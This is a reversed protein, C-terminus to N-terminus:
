REPISGPFRPGSGASAVGVCGAGPVCPGDPCQIATCQDPPPLGPRSPESTLCVCEEQGVALMECQVEPCLRRSVLLASSETRAQVFCQQPPTGDPGPLCDYIEAPRGECHPGGETLGRSRPEPIGSRAARTAPEFGSCVCSNMADLALVPQGHSAMPAWLQEGFRYAVCRGRIGGSAREQSAGPYNGYRNLIWAWVRQLFGPSAAQGGTATVGEPLSGEVVNGDRDLVIRIPGPDDPTHSGPTTEPDGSDPDEDQGEPQEESGTASPEPPPPTTDEDEGDMLSGCDDSQIVVGSLCESLRLLQDAVEARSPLLPSGGHAPRQLCEPALEGTADPERLCVQEFQANLWLLYHSVLVVSRARSLDQSGPLARAVSLTATELDQDQSSSGCMSRQLTRALRQAADRERAGQVLNALAEAVLHRRAIRTAVMCAASREPDGDPPRRSQTSQRSRSGAQQSPSASGLYAGSCSVLVTALLVVIGCACTRSQLM